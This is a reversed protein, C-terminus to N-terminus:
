SPGLVPVRDPRLSAEDDNLEGSYRYFTVSTWNGDMSIDVVRLSSNNTDEDPKSYSTSLFHM